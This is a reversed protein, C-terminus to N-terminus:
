RLEEKRYITNDRFLASLIGVCQRGDSARIATLAKEVLPLKSSRIKGVWESSM